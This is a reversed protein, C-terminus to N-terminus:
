LHLIDKKFFIFMTIEAFIRECRRQTVSILSNGIFVGTSPQTTVGGGNIDV